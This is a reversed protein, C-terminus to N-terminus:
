KYAETKLMLKDFIEGSYEIIIIAGGDLYISIQEEHLPATDKNWFRRIAIIKDYEIYLKENLKDM